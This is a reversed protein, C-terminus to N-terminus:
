SSLRSEARNPAALLTYNWDSQYEHVVLGPPSEGPPPAGVPTVPFGPKESEAARPAGKVSAIFGVQTQGSYAEQHELEIWRTTGPPVHCVTIDLAEQKAWHSLEWQWSQKWDHTSCRLDLALMMRESKRLVPRLKQRWWRKLCDMTFLASAQGSTPPQEGPYIGISVVAQHANLHRAAQSGLYHFQGDFDLGQATKPRGRRTQVRFGLDRLVRYVMVHSTLFGQNGLMEAIQRTSKSTWRLPFGPHDQLNPHLLRDIATLLNPQVNLMKKRGAGPTRIKGPLSLALERLGRQITARSVGSLRAMLAIGGRGWENAQAALFLRAQREDLEPLERALRAQLNQELTPRASNALESQGENPNM